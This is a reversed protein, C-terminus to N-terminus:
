TVGGIAWCAVSASGVSVSSSQRFRFGNAGTPIGTISNVINGSRIVATGYSGFMMIANGNNVSITFLFSSGSDKNITYGTLGVWNSWTSGNDNTLSVQLTQDAASGGGTCSFAILVEGIGDLGVFAIPDSQTMNKSQHALFTNLAIGMVRPAGVAGEALAVPNDRLAYMLESTVPADPDVDTDPINKWDAM